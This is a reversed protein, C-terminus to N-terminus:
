FKGSRPSQFLVKDITVSDYNEWIQNSNGRDLPNFCTTNYVDKFLKSTASIQNSNGRDLPNFGNAIEIQSM